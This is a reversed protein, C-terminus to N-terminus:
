DVDGSEVRVIDIDLDDIVNKLSYGSAIDADYAGAEFLLADVQDLLARAERMKNIDM